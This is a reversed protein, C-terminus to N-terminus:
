LERRSANTRRDPRPRGVVREVLVLAPERGGDSGSKRGVLDAGVAEPVEM